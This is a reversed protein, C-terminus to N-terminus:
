GPGGREVRLGVAGADRAADSRDPLKRPFRVTFTSGRGVASEVSVEGGLQACLRRVIHLGLGVGGHMRRDSGDVQRFMDFVHPLHEAPIGIGSDRVTIAWAGKEARCGVVVEGASTFKLANGVLNKVITKLKRRDTAMTVEAASEWRLTVGPARSLGALEADLERWLRPLRVEEVDVVDRGAELRNLDLTAEVLDLLERHAARIRAFALGHDGYAPDELMELHGAIVNLPTRLEHSMTSVLELKLRNARELEAVLLARAEEARVRAITLAIADAVAGLGDLTPERLPERAFMALVGVLRDAVLLPYGAFGVIGERRAWERDGIRPDGLVDNTLHPRREQAILGIEGRGVPVRPGGAGTDMGASAQLELTRGDEALTWIRALAAPLRRVATEACFQLSERLTPQELAGVRVDARVAELRAREALDTEAGERERRYRAFEYAVYVSVALAATVSAAPDVLADLPKGTLALTWFTGGEILAATALQPGPGWPLLAGATMSCVVALLPTTALHGKLVDGAAMLVYTGNVAALAILLVVKRGRTRRLVLLLGLALLAHMGKLTYVALFSDPATGLDALAFLAVCALIVWLGARTRQVLLASRAVASPPM